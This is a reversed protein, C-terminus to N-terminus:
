LTLNGEEQRDMLLSMFKEIASTEIDGCYNRSILVKGKVDLIYIASTPM